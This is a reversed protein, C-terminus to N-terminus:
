SLLSRFLIGIFVISLYVVTINLVLSKLIMFSIQDGLSKNKIVFVKRLDQSIIVIM